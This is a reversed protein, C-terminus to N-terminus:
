DSLAQMLVANPHACWPDLIGSEFKLEMRTVIQSDSSNKVM